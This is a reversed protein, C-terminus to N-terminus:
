LPRDPDRALLAMLYDLGGVHKIGRLEGSLMKQRHTVKKEEGGENKHCKREFTSDPM